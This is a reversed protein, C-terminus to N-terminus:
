QGRLELTELPTGYSVRVIKPPTTEARGDKDTVTLTYTYNGPAVANGSETTGDWQLEAPPQGSGRISRVVFQNQNKIQLNWSYIKRDADVRISMTTNKRIGVPSFVTPNAIISVAYGGWSFSMGFRNSAGAQGNSAAYDLATRGWLYGMGLSFEQNNFDFGGRLRLVQWLTGEVGMRWQLAQPVSLTKSTDLTLALRDRFLRTAVGATMSRPFQDSGTAYNLTPAIMNELKLGVRVNHTLRMLGGLDLGWGSASAGAFSQQSFKFTGGVSLPRLVNIGYGLFFTQQLDDFSGVERNFEDTQKLSGSAFRAYGLGIGGWRYIPQAYSIYDLKAEEVTQTHMFSIINPRLLGLGAPNYVVADTGEALGVFARGMGLAQPGGAFNLYAGPHGADQSYAVSGFLATLLGAALGYFTPLPKM